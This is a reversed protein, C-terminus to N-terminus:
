DDYEGYLKRMKIMIMIMAIFAIMTSMAIMTTMATMAIMTTSLVVVDLCAPRGIM